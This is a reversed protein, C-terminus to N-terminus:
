LNLKNLEQFYVEGKKKDIMKIYYALGYLHQKYSFVDYDLELHEIHNNVGFLKIYRIANDLERYVSKNVTAKSNIVIGTVIMKQGNVFKHCKEENLKFSYM